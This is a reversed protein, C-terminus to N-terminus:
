AVRLSAVPDPLLEGDRVIRIRGERETILMDGDPLFLMDWPFALGEAVPTLKFGDKSVLMGAGADDSGSADSGQAEFPATQGDASETDHTRDDPSCAALLTLAGALAVLKKM